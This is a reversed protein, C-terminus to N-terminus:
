KATMRYMSSLIGFSITLVFTNTEFSVLLVPWGLYGCGKKEATSGEGNGEEPCMWRASPRGNNNDKITICEQLWGQFLQQYNFHYVSYVCSCLFSHIPEKDKPRDSLMCFWPQPTWFSRHQFEWISKLQFLHLEFSLVSVATSVENRLFIKFTIKKSEENGNM